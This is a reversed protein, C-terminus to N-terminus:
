IEISRAALDLELVDFRTILQQNLGSLPLDTALAVALDAEQDAKNRAIAVECVATFSLIRGDDIEPAFIALKCGLHGAVDVPDDFAKRQRRADVADDRGGDGLSIMDEHTRHQKGAEQLM